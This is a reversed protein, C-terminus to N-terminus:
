LTEGPIQYTIEFDQVSVGEGAGKLELSLIEWVTTTETGSVYRFAL